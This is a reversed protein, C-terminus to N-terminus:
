DVAGSQVAAIANVSANVGQKTVSTIATAGQLLIGGIGHALAGRGEPQNGDSEDGDEGGAVRLRVRQWLRQRLFYDVGGEHASAATKQFLDADYKEFFYFGDEDSQKKEEGEHVGSTHVAIINGGHNNSSTKAAEAEAAAVLSADVGAQKDLQWSSAWMWGAPPSDTAGSDQNPQFASTSFNEPFHAPSFRGPEGPLRSPRSFKALEMIKIKGPCNM